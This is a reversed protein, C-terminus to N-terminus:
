DPAISSTTRIAPTTNIYINDQDDFFLGVVGVSPLRWRANGSNLEYATLVAQDFVYTAAMNRARSRRPSARAFVIAVRAPSVPYTLSAQWLKQQEPRSWWTRAAAIVNVTKLAFLQPARGSRRGILLGPTAPSNV